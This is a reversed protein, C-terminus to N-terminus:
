KKYSEKAKKAVETPKLGPNEKRVKAMHQLWPNKAAAGKAAATGKRSKKCKKGGEAEIEVKVEAVEAAPEVAAVVAKKKRPARKRKGGAPAGAAIVPQGYISQDQLGNGFGADVADERQGRRRLVDSIAPALNVDMNPNTNIM